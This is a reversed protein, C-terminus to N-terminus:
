ICTNEVQRQQEREPPYEQKNGEPDPDSPERERMDAGRRKFPDDDDQQDEGAQPQEPLAALTQQSSRELRHPDAIAYRWLTIRSVLPLRIFYSTQIKIGHNWISISFRTNLLNCEASVSKGSLAVSGSGRCFFLRGSGFKNSQTSSIQDPLRIM